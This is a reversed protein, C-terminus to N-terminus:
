VNQNINVNKNCNTKIEFLFGCLKAMLFVYEHFILYWFLVIKTSLIQHSELLEKKGKFCEAQFFFSKRAYFLSHKLASSTASVHNKSLKKDLLLFVSKQLAPHNGTIGSLDAILLTKRALAQISVNFVKAQFCKSVCRLM